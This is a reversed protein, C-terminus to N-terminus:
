GATRMIRKAGERTNQLREERTEQVGGGAFDLEKDHGYLKSTGTEDNRHQAYPASNSIEGILGKFRIKESKILRRTLHPNNSRQYLKQEMIRKRAAAVLSLNRGNIARFIAPAVVVKSRFSQAMNKRNTYIARM